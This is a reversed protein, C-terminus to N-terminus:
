SQSYRLDIEPIIAHRVVADRDLEVMELGKVGRLRYLADTFGNDGRIDSQSSDGTIVM